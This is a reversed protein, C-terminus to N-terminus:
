KSSIKTIFYILTVMASALGLVTAVRQFKQWKDSPKPPTNNNFHDDSIIDDESPTPDEDGTGGNNDNYYDYLVEPDINELDEGTGADNSQEIIYEDEEPMIKYINQIQL